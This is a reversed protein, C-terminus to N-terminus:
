NLNINNPNRRINQEIDDPAKSHEQDSFKKITFSEFKVKKIVDVANSSDEMSKSHTLNFSM